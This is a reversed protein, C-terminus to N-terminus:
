TAGIEAEVGALDDRGLAELIADLKLNVADEFRKQTNQLLAVLLFTVITTGTNVVLQWTSGFGFLPGTVAWSCVSLLCLAFFGARAVQGETWDAFRDFRSV